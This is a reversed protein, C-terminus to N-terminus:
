FRNVKFLILVAMHRRRDKKNTCITAINNTIDNIQRM